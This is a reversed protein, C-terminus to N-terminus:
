SSHSVEQLDETPGIGSLLLLKPSEISGASLIVEADALVVTWVGKADIAEVGIARQEDDLLVRTVRTNLWVDLNKRERVPELYARAMSQRVGARLNAQSEVFGTQVAGNCDDVIPYGAEKAAALWDADGDPNWWDDITVPGDTGHYPDNRFQTNNEARKFYPLVGAYDWGPNGKQAWREYDAPNGRVYLMSNMTSSGGLMKGSAWSLSRGPFSLYSKGNPQTAYQWDISSGFYLISFIPIQLGLPEAGGAEILLVRCNPDETLRAAVICGASGAGVVIYDYATNPAPTGISQM